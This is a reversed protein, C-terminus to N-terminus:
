PTPTTSARPPPPEDDAFVRESRYDSLAWRGDAGKRFEERYYGYNRFARDHPDGYWYMLNGMPWSGRARGDELFEIAPLHARHVTAAAGDLRDRLTAVWETPDYSNRGMQPPPFRPAEGM